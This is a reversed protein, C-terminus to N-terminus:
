GPLAGQLHAPGWVLLTPILGKPLRPSCALELGTWIRGRTSGQTCGTESGWPVSQQQFSASEMRFLEAQGQSSYCLLGGGVWPDSDMSPFAGQGKDGLPERLPLVQFSFM